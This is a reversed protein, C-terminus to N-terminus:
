EVADTQWGPRSPLGGTKACTLAGDQIVASTSATNLADVLGDVLAPSLPAEATIIPQLQEGSIRIQFNSPDNINQPNLSHTVAIGGHGYVKRLQTGFRLSIGTGPVDTLLSQSRFLM